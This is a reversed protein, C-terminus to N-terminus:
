CVAYIQLEYCFLLLVLSPIINISKSIKSHIFSSNRNVKEM